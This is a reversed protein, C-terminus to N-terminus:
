RQVLFQPSVLALLAATRARNIAMNPVNAPVSSVGDAIVQRLAPTMNGGMLLLSLRDTLATLNGTNVLGVLDGYSAKVDSDTGTWGLGFGSMLLATNAWAAVTSENVIQFEPATASAASFATNPPVYGPRNYGFVNDAWMPRQFLDAFSGSLMYKGSGSSVDFARMWQTVRLAPERLKGFDAAPTASRAEADLLIAKAVAGLDGRVGAGNDNFVAAVRGVYAPTPNGTVLRQILQRSIFPGVNPHKFLTDLAIRLSEAAPTNPPITVAHPKGVFVRKEATSHQGPYAKMRQLDIGVDAAAKYNPAVGRFVTDTLQSDPFGWSWGTFVKGMAMIDDNTYTEVPNGAADLKPTGDINLEHLGITFLQMVERAFNEDPVRGAVFDEKRNRMHTLYMGMAPSLAMEELLTRFNGFAHQNLSDLYKAYARTHQWLATDVQSVMFIQHLAFGMRRRLQDPAKHATSWFTRNVVGQDYKAGTPRYDDGLAYVAQVAPVYSATYPKALEQAVWQAPTLTAVRDIESATPGFTGQMLLRAAAQKAPTISSVAAGPWTLRLAASWYLEGQGASVSLNDFAATGTGRDLTASVANPLLVQGEASLYSIFLNRDQTGVVGDNTYVVDIKDGAVLSPLQFTYDTPVTSRVEFQGVQVGKHRLQMVAGVGGALTARARVTLKTPTNAAQITMTPREEAAAASADTTLSATSSEAPAGAAALLAAGPQDDDSSSGTRLGNDAGNGGGCASLSAAMVLATLVKVRPGIREAFTIMPNPETLPTRSVTPKM